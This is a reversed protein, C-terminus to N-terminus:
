EMRPSGSQIPDFSGPYMYSPTYLVLFLLFLGVGFIYYGNLDEAPVHDSLSAIIVTFFWGVTLRDLVLVFRKSAISDLWCIFRKFSSRFLRFM